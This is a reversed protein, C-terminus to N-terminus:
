TGTAARAECPPVMGCEYPTGPDASPGPWAVRVARPLAHREIVTELSEALLRATAAYVPLVTSEVLRECFAPLWEDLHDRAFAHLARETVREAESEGADRARALLVLLMAAFELETVAHDAKEGAEPALELGFARYFGCVDALVAGKDRRIFATENPPCVSAGEFLRSREDSWSGPDTAAAAALVEDLAATGGPRDALRSRVALEKAEGARVAAFAEADVPRLLGAGLLLLDAQALCEVPNPVTRTV